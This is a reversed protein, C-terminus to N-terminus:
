RPRPVEWTPPEPLRPFTYPRYPTVWPYPNRTTTTPTPKTSSSSPGTTSTPPESTPPPPATTTEPETTTTIEVSPTTTSPELIPAPLPPTTQTISAESQADRIPPVPTADDSRFLLAVAIGGLILGALAAVAILVPTRSRKEGPAAASGAAETPPIAVTAMPADVRMIAASYAQPHSQASSLAPMVDTVVLANETSIPDPPTAGAPTALVAALAARAASYAFSRGPEGTKDEPLEGESVLAVSRLGLYDLAERLAQVQEQPWQVPYTAYFEAPGNLYEAALNILCFLATAVLDEARYAEGDDVPVGTPDGVARVFGGISHSDDAPAPGGLVTDGDDSMHLISERVIFQPEDGDTAIAATFEDEAIRLGVGTAM